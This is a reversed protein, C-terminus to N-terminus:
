QALLYGATFSAAIQFARTAYWPPPDATITYNTVGVMRANPDHLRIDIVAEKPRFLGARQWRRDVTLGVRSTYQMSVKDPYVTGRIDMYESTHEFSRAVTDAPLNAEGPEPDTLPAEIHGSAEVHIVTRSRLDRLRKGYDERMAVIESDKAARLMAMTLEAEQLEYRLRGEKDRYERLSGEASALTVAAHTLSARQKCGQVQSLILAVLLLIITANKYM